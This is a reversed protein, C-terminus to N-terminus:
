ASPRVNEGSTAGGFVVPAIGGVAGGGNLRFVIVWPM